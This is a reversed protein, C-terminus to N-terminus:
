ALVLLPESAGDRADDGAAVHRGPREDGLLVQEVELPLREEPEAALLLGELADLVHQLLALREAVLAPCPLDGHTCREDEGRDAGGAALRLLALQPVHPRVVEGRRRDPREDLPGPHVRLSISSTMMPQANGSPSCPMFTPARRPAARRAGPAPARRLGHVAEAGGPQLRDRGRRLPDSAPKASQMTAPPASLM